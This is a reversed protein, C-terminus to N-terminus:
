NETRDSLRSLRQALLQRYAGAPIKPTSVRVLRDLPLARGAASVPTPHQM